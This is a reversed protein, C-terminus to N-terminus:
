PANGSSSPAANTPAGSTEKLFNDLVDLYGDLSSDADPGLELKLARLQDASSKAERRLDNMDLKGSMLGGVMEDYKGGAQPNGGLMQERIQGIFNTNAGLQRFAASLDTNTNAWAASAVAPSQNTLAPVPALHIAAALAAANTGFALGAVKQRPVTIKGLVDSELVVTDGSVSLVKGAYRDGNQMDSQDARLGPAALFLCTMGTAVFHLRFRM